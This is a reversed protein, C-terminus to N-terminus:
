QAPSSAPAGEPFLSTLYIVVAKKGSNRATHVLDSTEVLSDGPGLETTEGEKVTETKAMSTGSARTVQVEGRLVTYTLTGETIVALQTGPHTHAAIDKGPPIVVRSLGLTQGPATDPTADEFFQRAVETVGDGPSKVRDGGGGCASALLCLLLLPLIFTAHVPRLMPTRGPQM